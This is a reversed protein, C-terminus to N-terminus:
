DFHFSVHRGAAPIWGPDRDLGALRIEIPYGELRMFVHVHAPTIRLSAPVHCLLAAGDDRGMARALRAVLYAAIWGTWRASPSRELMGSVEEMASIKDSYPEIEEALAEVSTRGALPVDVVPFAAPHTVVLREHATASQFTGAEPFQDLWEVPLRWADPASFDAGALQFANRGALQALLPWVPDARFEDHGAFECGFLAVFDWINLELGPYLPNAFDGYLGLYIAVNLLFFAGGFATEIPASLDAVVDTHRSGGAFNMPRADEESFIMDEPVISPVSGPEGAAAAGDSQPSPIWEHQSKLPEDPQEHALQTAEGAETEQPELASAQNSALPGDPLPDTPRAPPVTPGDAASPLRRDASPATSAANHAPTEHPSRVPSGTAPAQRPAIAPSPRARWSEVQSAFWGARAVSPARRLLLAYAVLLRAPPCLGDASAEPVWPLWPDAGSDTQAAASSPPDEEEM